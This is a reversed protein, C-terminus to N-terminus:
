ENEPPEIKRVRDGKAVFTTMTSNGVKVSVDYVESNVSLVKGRQEGVSGPWAIWDAVKIEDDM